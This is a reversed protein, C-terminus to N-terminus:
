MSECQVMLHSCVVIFSKVEKMLHIMHFEHAFAMVVRTTSTKLLHVIRRLESPDGDWPLVESFTLCGAGSQALASKLSRAVNRGYDDDSILLGVWTWGFRKLIQVM